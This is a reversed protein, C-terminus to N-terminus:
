SVSLAKEAIEKLAEEVVLTTDASYKELYIRVTAGSSGTGSLRFVFRSGDAWKFIYGQNSSVSNDVPDTYSFNVATNGEAEGQFVPLQSELLQFIKDADATELGEYDYRQYYNRGYEAWHGRVIDEVTILKGTNGRNKDALISLWCLVAWLGDKERIHFSGTGFSEEGCLSIMGNDLLNGFFKWGTPTEYIPVKLKELVRDLAGSTPMSRAAGSIGGSLFPISKFNATLIAISDSPTVFFNKGLIMNRDADGDCAAGFEPADERNVFVGMIKVLEEAYTLNPDPHAGGFDPLVNCRMLNEAPVGLIEGLILSAYPGSAGHMGDFVLKFDSRQVFAKLDDFNFLTRLLEVYTLTSDFVEVSFESFGEVSGLEHVQPTEISVERGFDVLRYESIAKTIDFVRNTYAELAPGGNSSNFKIGFDEHEGAPNHSATLLIGGVCYDAGHDANLKRILASAAPTSILGNLGVYVRRIGNAAAIRLIIQIAVDNHYRGDGAIVM